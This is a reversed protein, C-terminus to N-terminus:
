EDGIVTTIENKERELDDIKTKLLDAEGVLKNREGWLSDLMQKIEERRVALLMYARPTAARNVM